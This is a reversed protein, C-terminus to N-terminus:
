PLLSPLFDLHSYGSSGLPERNTCGKLGKVSCQTEHEAIQKYERAEDLADGM